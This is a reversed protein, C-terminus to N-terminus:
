TTSRHRSVHPSRPRTPEPPRTSSSGRHWRSPDLAGRLLPPLTEIFLKQAAALPVMATTDPSLLTPQLIGVITFPVGRLSVSDGVTLTLKRALDSGLVTVQSGEDGATLLRGKAPAIKFTDLGNDAGAVAGSILGPTGFAANPIADYQVEVKPDVAAVGDM